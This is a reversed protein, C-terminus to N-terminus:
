KEWKSLKELKILEIDSEVLDVKCKKLKKDKKKEKLGVSDIEVDFEIKRKKFKKEKKCVKEDDKEINEDVKCKKLLFDLFEM